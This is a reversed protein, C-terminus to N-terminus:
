AAKKCPVLLAADAGTEEWKDSEMSGTVSCYKKLKLQFDGPGVKLSLLLQSLCHYFIVGVLIVSSQGGCAKFECNGKICM